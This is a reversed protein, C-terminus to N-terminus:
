GDFVVRHCSTEKLNICLYIIEVSFKKTCPLYLKKNSVVM